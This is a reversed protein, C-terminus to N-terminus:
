SIAGQQRLSQIDQASYGLEKLVENTQEGTSPALRRVQGPTKSLKIAIGVQQSKGIGPEDVELVMKRHLVQPDSLTEDVSYVKGVAIDKQWLEKFWEDRTKTRFIHRFIAFIEDRKPGTDWQYPILDDRGIERCLNEWFHPEICGLSIYKNDKTEYVGYCPYAGNLFGEGRHPVNGTQLYHTIEMSLLAVVSDVMAIDVHQGQGTRQRAMLALLIGVVSHLTGGAYDAVLNLPIAPKGNRDGILGLAGGISIYNIDHGPLFKYPGDQGYGSVSCCIIKPNLKSLTDYDVGLRKVVGPRFGELVVDADAALKYFIQKGAESKLNLAISRKNRNFGKYLQQRSEWEGLQINAPNQKQGEAGPPTEIKLVDAGMDALIMTSFLHPAVRALELVKIGELPLAM